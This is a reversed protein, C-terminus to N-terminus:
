AASELGAVGKRCMARHCGAVLHWRAAGGTKHVCVRWRLPATTDHGSQRQLQLRDSLIADRTRPVESLHRLHDPGVGLAGRLRRGQLLHPPAAQVVEEAVEYMQHWFEDPNDQPAVMSAGRAAIERVGMVTRAATANNMCCYCQEPGCIAYTDM